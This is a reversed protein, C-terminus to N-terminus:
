RDVKGPGYVVQGPKAGTHKGEAVVAQGNVLVYDFGAAYQHPKEFTAMDTVKAPDFVVVDAWYGERLLGRGRMRFTQAPLSTMKRIADELTIVGKERVYRALSRSNTGYARPHPVGQGFQVVGADSAVATFPARMIREVDEDGMSFYVMQIRRGGTKLELDLVTKVEQELRAKRGMERNIQAISKGELKPDFWCRAVVAYDLRKFGKRRISEVMEKEIKRRTAPDSYRAKIKEWGDAQAWSPILMGLGTSSGRYPYQDVTVELGERRAKEVLGLSKTSSGWIRKTDIKFHSLQVPMKGERGVRLAEEIAAAIQAGEDRMHSAYVGGYRGAVKGLEVVEAPSSYTGPIYILGTSFGVAGAEMGRAVLAKMKEIEEPTASRNATGMVQSRVTNHGMLSALNLSIGGRTLSEFFQSLDPRSGGCNGTVITTVGDLLFNDATPTEPLNGEVHTHVDIFGPAVVRGAADLVLRAAAGPPVAGTRAVRGDKIAVDGHFWPNGSGDVLRGNRIILDYAASEGGAWAEHVAKAVRAITLTAENDATWRRDASDYAFIALAITASPAYIIGADNRLEDLAGSKLAFSVKPLGALYRPIKDTDRQKKLIALMRECTDAGGLEPARKEIMVLLRLMENPTTVGLGFEKEEATLPRNLQTFVKRFIKTNPLGLAAMRATVNGVGVKDLVLNAATNDSEVIMLTVADELTLRLGPQLDQLIGSGRVRDQAGLAVPDDLRLKGEKVQLFAEVMVAVKIVSATKVRKDADLGYSQGGTLNTAALAVKGRFQAAIARLHHDLSPQAAARLAVLMGLLLVIRRM